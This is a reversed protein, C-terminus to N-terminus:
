RRVLLDLNLDALFEEPEYHCMPSNKYLRLGLVYAVFAELTAGRSKDWGKLLFVADCAILERLDRKLFEVWPLDTTPHLKAPNVVHKYGYSERLLEEVRNFAPFNFEEYGSMPGAIYVKNGMHKGGQEVVLAPYSPSHQSGQSRSVDAMRFEERMEV